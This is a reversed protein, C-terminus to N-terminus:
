HGSGQGQREAKHLNWLVWVMFCVAPIVLILLLSESPIRLDHRNRKGSEAACAPSQMLGGASRLANM